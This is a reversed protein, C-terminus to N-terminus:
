DCLTWMKVSDILFGRHEADGWTPEWRAKGDMFSKIASDRTGINWPLLGSVTNFYGTGGVALNIILYFEQDFPSHSTGTVWPNQFTQGTYFSLANFAGLNWFGKSPFKFYAVRTLKKDVYTRISTPSWEMGFTHYGTTLSTTGSPFTLGNTTFGHQDITYPVGPGWHLSSVATNHGGPSKHGLADISIFDIGNGRSEMIDIEGSRPWLGYTNNVPMMWIAPWLWDGVPLKAKVEIRGYKIAFSKATNLRASRIPPIYNNTTSNVVAVCAETNSRGTYAPDNTCLGSDTLNLTEGETQPWPQVTPVLHLKGNQVYSNEEYPTTWEFEGTGFGGCEVERHWLNTDLTAFNDEFLLCYKHTEWAAWGGYSFACIIFFGFILGVRPIWGAIREERTKRQTLWFKHEPEKMIRSRFPQTYRKNKSNFFEGHLSFGTSLGVSAMYEVADSKEGDIAEEQLEVSRFSRQDDQIEETSTTIVDKEM